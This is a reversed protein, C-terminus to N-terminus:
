PLIVMPIESLRLLDDVVYKRFLDTITRTGKQVVLMGEQKQMYEKIGAIPDEERKIEVNIPAYQAYLDSLVNLYERIEEDPENHKLVSFLVIRKGVSATISLLKRFADENLPYKLTVAVHLHDFDTKELDDPLAIITKQIESILRVATSQLFIRELWSKSKVGVLIFDSMESHHLRHIATELSGTTVYYKLTASDEGLTEKAFDSLQALAQKREQRKIENRIETEGMGPAVSFFQHVLLMEANVKKARNNVLRLTNKSQETLDTLLIFRKKM